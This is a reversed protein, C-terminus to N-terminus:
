LINVIWRNLRLERRYALHVAAAALAATVAGGVVDGVYHLGVYVRSLAIALAAFGYLMRYPDRLAFLTMAVACVVTAHDSPFSPDASREVILHSVGADYPRIRDVFLLVIQNLGLGLATALGCSAAAFRREPRLTMTWWRLAISVVFVYIAWNALATMAADALPSVGTMGNIMGTLAGDIDTM